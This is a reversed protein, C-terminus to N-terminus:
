SIVRLLISLMLMTSGSHSQALFTTLLSLIMAQLPYNSTMWLCLKRSRLRTPSHHTAPHWAPPRPLISPPIEQLLPQHFETLGVQVRRVLIRVVVASAVVEISIFNNAPRMKLNVPYTLYSLYCSQSVTVFVPPSSSFM